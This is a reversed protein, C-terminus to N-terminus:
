SIGGAVRPPPHSRAIAWTSAPAYFEALADPEETLVHAVNQAVMVHEILEDPRAVHHRAASPHIREVFFWTRSRFCVCPM